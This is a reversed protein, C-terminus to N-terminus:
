SATLPSGHGAPPLGTVPPGRSSRPRHRWQSAAPLHGAPREGAPRALSRRRGPRLLVRAVARAVSIAGVLIRQGACLAALFVLALVMHAVAAAPTLLATHAAHGAGLGLAWPATHLLLHIAGQGSLLIALLTVPSWARFDPVGRRSAAPLIALSVATLWILPAVPLIRTDGATLAHGILTAALAGATLSARRLARAIVPSM